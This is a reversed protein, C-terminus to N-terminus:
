AGCLLRAALARLRCRALHTAGAHQGAGHGAAGALDHRRRGGALAGHGGGRGARLHGPGPGLEAPAPEGGPLLPSDTRVRGGHDSVQVGGGAGRRGRCRCYIRSHPVPAPVCDTDGARSHGPHAGAAQDLRRVHQTRFRPGAVGAARGGAEPPSAALRLTRAGPWAIKAGAANDDGQLSFGRDDV